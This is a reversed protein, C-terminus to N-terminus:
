GEGIFYYNKYKKKIKNKTKTNLVQNLDLILVSKKLNNYVNSFIKNKTSFIIADFKNLNELKNKPYINAEKWIKVNPDYVQIFAKNKKFYDYVFKIPSNRTDDVDEKYSAGLIGGNKIKDLKPLKTKLDDFINKTMQDNIRVAMTSLPFKFNFKEKYIQSNSSKGFLPDKTLCYGGVGLGANMINSHTKRQRITKLINNLNLKMRFSFKRWEEIFAINLARYSNEIIKCTESETPSNLRTIPYKKYNLISKFFKETKYYSTQNLAGIIRNSNIISDLYNRGPTVREYSHSLLIRNYYKKDNRKKNLINSLKMETTGPPLTTEVIILCDSKIYKSIEKFSQLFNKLNVKSNKKDIDCNISIIVIKSNRIDKIDTTPYFNKSKHLQSYLKSFKRDDIKVPLKKENLSKIIKKGHYDNKELGIVKYINKSKKKVTAALVATALGVYGLGIVSIKRMKITLEM